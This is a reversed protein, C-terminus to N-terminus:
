FPSALSLRLYSANPARTETKHMDLRITAAALYNDARQRQAWIQSEQHTQPGGGGGGVITLLFRFFHTQRRHLQFNLHVLFGNMRSPRLVLFQSAKELYAAALPDSCHGSTALLKCSYLPLAPQNSFHHLLKLFTDCFKHLVQALAVTKSLAFAWRLPRQQRRQRRQLAAIQM